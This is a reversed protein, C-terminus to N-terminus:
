EPTYTIANIGDKHAKKLELTGARPRRAPLHLDAEHPANTICNLSLPTIFEQM